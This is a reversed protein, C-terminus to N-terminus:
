MYLGRYSTELMAAPPWLSQSGSILPVVAASHPVGASVVTCSVMICWGMLHDARSLLEGVGIETYEVVGRGGAGGSGGGGGGSSGTGDSVLLGVLGESHQEVFANLLDEFSHEDALRRM